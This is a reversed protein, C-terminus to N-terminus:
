PALRSAFSPAVRATLAGAAACAYYGAAIVLALPVAATSLGVRRHDRVVGYLIESVRQVLATPTASPGAGAAELMVTDRGHALARRVARVVGDPPPHAARAGRAQVIVVGEDAFRKALAVCSARSTGPIKPFPSALATERRLAFSNAFFHTTRAVEGREDRLGFVWALALSKGWLGTPDLYTAGAVGAVAEDRFPDLMARLWGPEPVVDCDLFVVLEGRSERAGANKLEYYDCGPAAVVRVDVGSPALLQEAEAVEGPRGDHVLLIEFDGSDEGALEDRLRELMTRARSAGALRVNDWEIVISARRDSM